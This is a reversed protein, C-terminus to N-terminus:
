ERLGRGTLALFVEELSAEHLRVGEIGGPISELTTLAVQLEDGLGYLPVRITRGNWTGIPPTFDPGVPDVPRVELEFSSVLHEKALSATDGRAVLNGHDIIAVSDVLTEAEEILHTAHLITAGNSRLEEIMRWIAARAQPDVGETPEDLLLLRPRHLISVALNLRRQMGGSYYRV